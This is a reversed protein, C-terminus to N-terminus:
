TSLRDMTPGPVISPCPCTHHCSYPRPLRGCRTHAALTHHNVANLDKSRRVRGIRIANMDPIDTVHKDVIGM